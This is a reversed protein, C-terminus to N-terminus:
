PDPPTENALAVLGGPRRAVHWALPRRFRSITISGHPDDPISQKTLNKAAAEQNVWTTFDKIRHNLTDAKLAGIREQGYHYSSGLLLEGEPM